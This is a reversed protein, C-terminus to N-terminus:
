KFLFLEWQGRYATARLTVGVGEKDFIVAQYPDHENQPIHDLWPREYLLGKGDATDEVPALGREPSRATGSWLLLVGAIAAACFVWARRRPAFLVDFILTELMRDIFRLVRVGTRLIMRM